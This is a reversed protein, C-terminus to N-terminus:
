SAHLKCANVDRADMWATSNWVRRDLEGNQLDVEPSLFSHPIGMRAVPVPLLSGGAKGDPVKSSAQAAWARLGRCPLGLACGMAHCGVCAAWPM